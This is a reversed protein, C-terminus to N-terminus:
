RSTSCASNRAVRRHMPNVYAYLSVTSVPLHRLAYLYASYAAISGAARSVDISQATRPSFTLRRWERLLGAAVMFVDRRLADAIRGASMVDRGEPAPTLLGIRAGVGRMRNADGRRRRLSGHRPQVSEPWVLLVVGVFGIVLGVLRGTAATRDHHWGAEIGVMWFPAMAGRASGGLGSPITQEAWVVGGNGFGIMLFGLMALQQWASSAPPGIAGCRLALLILGGAAVM